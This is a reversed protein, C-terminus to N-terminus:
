AANEQPLIIKSIGHNLISDIPMRAIAHEFRQCSPGQGPTLVFTLRQLIRIRSVEMLGLYDSEIGQTHVNLLGAVQNLAILVTWCTCALEELEDHTM